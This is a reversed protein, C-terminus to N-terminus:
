PIPLPLIDEDGLSDALVATETLSDIIDMRDQTRSMEVGRASPKRKQLVTAVVRDAGLHELVGASMHEDVEAARLRKCMISAEIFTPLSRSPFTATTVPPERPMPFPMATVSPSRAQVTYMVPRDTAPTEVSLALDRRQRETQTARQSPLRLVQCSYSQNLVPKHCPITYSYRKVIETDTTRNRFEVIAATQHSVHTKFVSNCDFGPPLAM